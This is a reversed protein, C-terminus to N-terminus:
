PTELTVPIDLDNFGGGVLLPDSTCGLVYLYAANCCGEVLTLRWTGLDYPIIDVTDLDLTEIAVVTDMTVVWAPDFTTM